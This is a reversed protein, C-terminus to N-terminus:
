GQLLQYLKGSIEFAEMETSLLPIGDEESHEIMSAEPELSKVIIVGAVDKLSAIAMVNRHTQLTIWLQGEEVNGMVDSLLDSTYGGLVERDLNGAGAIVKLNLQEVIEKLKMVM